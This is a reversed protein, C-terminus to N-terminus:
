FFIINFFSVINNEKEKKIKELKLKHNNIVEKIIDLEEELPKVEIINNKIYKLHIGAKLCDECLHSKCDFCYSIFKKLQHKVCKDKIIEINKEKILQNDIDQNSIARSPVKSPKKSLFKEEKQKNEEIAKNILDQAQSDIDEQSM